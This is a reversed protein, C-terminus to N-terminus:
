SLSAIKKYVGETPESFLGVSPKGYRVDIHIHDRENIAQYISYGSPNKILKGWWADMSMTTPVIDISWGRHPSEGQYGSVRAELAASRYGSTVVFPGIDRYLRSVQLAAYRLRLRETLTPTNDVGTHTKLVDAWTFYPSLPGYLWLAFAAASAITAVGLVTILTNSEESSKAM